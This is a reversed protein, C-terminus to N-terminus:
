LKLLFRGLIGSLLLFVGPLLFKETQDFIGTKPLQNNSSNSSNSVGSGIIIQAPQNRECTLINSYNTDNKVIKSSDCIFGITATGNTKAKFKVTAVTGLGTKPSASDDVMGAIYITSTSINNTVTPFYDGQTVSVGEILNQDFQLYADVSTIEEEQPDVILQLDFEQGASVNVQSQDFKFYAAQVKTAFLFFFVVAAILFRTLQDKKM